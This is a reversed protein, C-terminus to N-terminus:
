LEVAIYNHEGSYGLFSNETGHGTGTLIVLTKITSASYKDDDHLLHSRHKSIWLTKRIKKATEQMISKLPLGSVLGPIKKGNQVFEM